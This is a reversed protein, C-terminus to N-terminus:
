KLKRKIFNRSRVNLDFIFSYLLVPIKFVGLELYKFNSYSYTRQNVIVAHSSYGLSAYKEHPEILISPYFRRFILNFLTQDHRFLKCDHFVGYGLNDRNKESLSYGICYGKGAALYTEKIAKNINSHSKNLGINGAAFVQDSVNVAPNFMDIYNRPTIDNIRQGQDILFYGKMEIQEFIHTLDSVVTNGADLHFFIDHSSHEYVYIKWAYCDAWKNEFDKIGHVEVNLTKLIKKQFRTLGLDWVEVLFNDGNTRSISGILNLLRSFYKSDASSSIVRKVREHM